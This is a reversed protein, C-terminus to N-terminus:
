VLTLVLFKETVGCTATLQQFSNVQPFINFVEPFINFVQPFINFVQPFINSNSWLINKCSKFIYEQLISTVTIHSVM